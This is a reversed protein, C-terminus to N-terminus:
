EDYINVIEGDLIRNMNKRCLLERVYQMHRRKGAKGGARYRKAKEPDICLRFMEEWDLNKRATSM